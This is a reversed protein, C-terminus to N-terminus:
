PRRRWCPPQSAWAPRLRFVGLCVAILTIILMLSSLNFTLATNAVLPPPTETTEAKDSSFVTSIRQGCLWCATDEPQLRTGCHPCSTVTAAAPKSM